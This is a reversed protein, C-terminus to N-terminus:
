WKVWLVSTQISYFKSIFYNLKDEARHIFPTKRYWVLKNV